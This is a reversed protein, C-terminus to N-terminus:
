SKDGKGKKKAWEKEIRPMLHGVAEDISTYGGARVVHDKLEFGLPKEVAALIGVVVLSDIQISASAQAKPETPFTVGEFEAASMAAVVLEKRLTAEISATPFAAPKTSPILTETM